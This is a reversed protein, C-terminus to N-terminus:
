FYQDEDIIDYLILGSLSLIFTQIIHPPSPVLNRGRVKSLGFGQMGITFLGEMCCRTAWRELGPNLSIIIVIPYLPSSM